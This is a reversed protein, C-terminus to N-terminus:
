EEPSAIRNITEIPLLSLNEVLLRLFHASVSEIEEISMRLEGAMYKM